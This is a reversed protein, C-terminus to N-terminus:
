GRDPLPFRGQKSLNQPPCNQLTAAALAKSKLEVYLEIMPALLEMGSFYRYVPIRVEQGFVVAHDSSSVIRAPAIGLFGLAELYQRYQTSVYLHAGGRLEQRLLGVRPLVEYLFHGYIGDNSQAATVLRDLRPVTAREMSSAAVQAGWLADRLLHFGRDRRHWANLM